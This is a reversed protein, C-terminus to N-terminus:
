FAKSSNGKYSFRTCLESLEKLKALCERSKKNTVVWQTMITAMIKVM